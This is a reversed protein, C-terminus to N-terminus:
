TLTSKVNQESSTLTPILQLWRKIQIDLLLLKRFHSHKKSTVTNKKSHRYKSMVSPMKCLRCKEFMRWCLISDRTFNAAAAAHVFLLMKSVKTCHWNAQWRLSPIQDSAQMNGAFIEITRPVRFVTLLKSISHMKKWCNQRCKGFPRIMCPNWFQENERHHRRSIEFLSLM